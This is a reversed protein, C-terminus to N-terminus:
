FEMMKMKWVRHPHDNLQVEFSETNDIKDKVPKSIEYVYGTQCAIIIKTSNTDWKLDNITSGEPLNIQCLPEYRELDNHGNTEFFFIEGNNAATVLM